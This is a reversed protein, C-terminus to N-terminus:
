WLPAGVLVGWRSSDLVVVLVAMSARPRLAVIMVQSREEAEETLARVGVIRAEWSGEMRSLQAPMWRRWGEAEKGSESQSRTRWVLREVTKVRQRSMPACMSVRGPGCLPFMMLM